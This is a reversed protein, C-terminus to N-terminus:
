LGGEIVKNGTKEFFQEAKVHGRGITIFDKKLANLVKAYEVAIAGAGILWINEM